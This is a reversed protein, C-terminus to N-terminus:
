WFTIDNQKEQRNTTDDDDVVVVADDDDGRTQKNDLFPWRSWLCYALTVGFLLKPLIRLAKEKIPFYAITRMKWKQAPKSHLYLSMRRGYLVTKKAVKPNGFQRLGREIAQDGSSHLFGDSLVKSLMVADCMARNAGESRFQNYHQAADGVLVIRGRHNITPLTDFVTDTHTLKSNRIIDPIPAFWKSVLTTIHSKLLLKDHFFTHLHEHHKLDFTFSWDIQNDSTNPGIEMSCYDGFVLLRSDAMSSPLLKRTSRGTIVGLNLPHMKRDGILQKAIRSKSGDCAILLDCEATEGNEFEICIVRNEGESYQRFSTNWNIEVDPPVIRLLFERLKPQDIHYEIKPDNPPLKLNWLIQGTPKMWQFVSTRKAMLEFDSSHGLRSLALWGTGHRLQIGYEQHGEGGQASPDREFLRINNFGKQKLAIATTLGSISGGVIAIRISNM